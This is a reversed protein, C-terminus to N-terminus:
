VHSASLSADEGVASHGSCSFLNKRYKYLLWSWFYKNPLMRLPFICCIFLWSNIIAQIWISSISRHSAGSEKLTVDAFLFKLCKQSWTKWGRVSVFIVSFALRLLDALSTLQGTHCSTLINAFCKLTGITFGDNIDFCLNRVCTRSIQISNNKVGKRWKSSSWLLQIFIKM